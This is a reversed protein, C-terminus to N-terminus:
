QRPMAPIIAPAIDGLPINMPPIGDDPESSARESELKSFASGKFAGLTVNLQKAEQKPGRLVNIVVKDGPKFKDL